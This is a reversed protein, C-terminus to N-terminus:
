EALWQQRISAARGSKCEIEDDIDVPSSGPCWHTKPTEKQNNIKISQDVRDGRKSRSNTFRSCKLDEWLDLEGFSKPSHVAVSVSDDPTCFVSDPTVILPKPALSGPALVILSNKFGNFVPLLKHKLAFYRLILHVLTLLGM